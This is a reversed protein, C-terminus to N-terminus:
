ARRRRQFHPAQPKHYGLGQEEIHRLAHHCYAGEKDFSLLLPTEAEAHKWVFPQQHYWRELCRLKFWGGEYDFCLALWM